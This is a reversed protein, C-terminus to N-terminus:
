KYSCLIKWGLPRLQQTYNSLLHRRQAYMIQLFNLCDLQFVPSYLLINYYGMILMVKKSILLLSSSRFNPSKIFQGM